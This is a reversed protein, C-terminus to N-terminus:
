NIQQMAVKIKYKQKETESVKSRIIHIHVLPLDTRLKYFFSSSYFSYKVNSVFHSM